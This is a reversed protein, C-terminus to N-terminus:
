MKTQESDQVTLVSGNSHLGSTGNAARPGVGNGAVKGNGVSENHGGNGLKEPSSHVRKIQGGTSSTDTLHMHHLSSTINKHSEPSSTISKPSETADKESFGSESSKLSSSDDESENHSLQFLVAEDRRFEDLDNGIELGFGVPLDDSPPSHACHTPSDPDTDTSYSCCM